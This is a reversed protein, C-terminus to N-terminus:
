CDSLVPEIGSPRLQKGKKRKPFNKKENTWLIVM